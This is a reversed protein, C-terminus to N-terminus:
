LAINSIRVESPRTCGDYHAVILADGKHRWPGGEIVRIKEESKEFELKFMLGRSERSLGTQYHGM